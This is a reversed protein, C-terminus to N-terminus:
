DLVEWQNADYAHWWRSKYPSLNQQLLGDWSCLDREM